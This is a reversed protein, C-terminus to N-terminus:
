VVIDYMFSSKIRFNLTDLILNKRKKGFVFSISM